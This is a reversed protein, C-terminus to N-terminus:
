ITTSNETKESNPPPYQERKRLVAGFRQAILFRDYRALAARRGARGMKRRFSSRSSLRGIAYVFGAIDGPKVAVGAEAGEVIERAEGDAVLIIPIGSAMAEYIKPPVAGRIPSRLTIVAVDMSSLITPIRDHSIPPYFDLNDLDLDVAKKVLSQKEPGDGFLIFRPKGGKVHDAAELVQDLGQFLGHLGAYVFAVEGNKLYRCRIQRDRHAPHFAETDVGNSLHYVRASPTQKQIEDVIEKSQGTVVWARRYLAHALWRLLRYVVSSERVMGIYKASDPWLDSINLIWRAGGLTALFWGTLALFLPPSETIIVDVRSMQM